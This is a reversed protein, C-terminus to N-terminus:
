VPTTAWRGALDTSVDALLDLFREALPTLTTNATVAYIRRHLRPEALERHVAGPTPTVTLRSLMTVGIGTGALSQAVHYNETEFQVRPAFGADAAARDLQRRAAHGSVIVIWPDGALQALRLVDEQRALRHDDPLCLAMPDTLLPRVRLTPPVALTASYSAIVAVDVQGEDVLAFGRDSTIEVITLEAEPHQHRLATLAPPLLHQAAAQFTGIRLRRSLPGLMREVTTAVRACQDIVVEGGDALVHGPETLRAGRPGRVVLPIGWDAEARAVQGSVAAATVGLTQAAGSLSGHTRILALLRLQTPDGPM